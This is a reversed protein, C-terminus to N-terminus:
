KILTMLFHSAYTLSAFLTFLSEGMDLVIAVAALVWHDATKSCKMPLTFSCFQRAQSIVLFIDCIRNSETRIVYKVIM